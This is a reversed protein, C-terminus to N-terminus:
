LGYYRGFNRRWKAHANSSASFKWDDVKEYEGNQMAQVVEEYCAVAQEAIFVALKRQKQTLTRKPTVMSDKHDVKESSLKSEPGAQVETKVAVTKEEAKM